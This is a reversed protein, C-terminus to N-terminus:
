LLFFRPPPDIQDGGGKLTELTLFMNSRFNFKMEPSYVRERGFDKM